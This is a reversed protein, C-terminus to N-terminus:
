TSDKSAVSEPRSVPNVFYTQLIGKGKAHVLDERTTLWSMKGKEILLDATAQSCQIMGPKSTSEMRAAAFQGFDM